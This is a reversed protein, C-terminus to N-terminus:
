CEEKRLANGEELKTEGADKKDEAIDLLIDALVYDIQSQLTRIYEIKKEIAIRTNKDLGM